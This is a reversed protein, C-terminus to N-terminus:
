LPQYFTYWRTRAWPPLEDTCEEIQPGLGIMKRNPILVDRETSKPSLGPHLAVEANGGGQFSHLIHAIHGLYTRRM